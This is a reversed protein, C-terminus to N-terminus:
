QREYIGTGIIYSFELPTYELTNQDIATLKFDVGAGDTFTAVTGSSTGSATHGSECKEHIKNGETRIFCIDMNAGNAMIHLWRGDLSFDDSVYESSSVKRRQLIPDLDRKDFSVTHIDPGVPISVVIKDPIEGASKVILRGATVEGPPIVQAGLKQESFHSETMTRDQATTTGLYELGAINHTNGLAMSLGTLVALMELEEERKKVPDLLANEDYGDINNPDFILDNEGINQITVLYDFYHRVDGGRGSFGIMVSSQDGISVHTLGSEDTRIVCHNSTECHEEGRLGTPTFLGVAALHEDTTACGSLVIATVLIWHRISM